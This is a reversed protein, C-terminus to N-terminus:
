WSCKWHNKNQHEMCVHNPMIIFSLNPYTKSDKNMMGNRWMKINCYQLTMFHEIMQCIHGTWWRHSLSATLSLHFNFVLCLEQNDENDFFAHGLNETFFVAVPTCTKFSWYLKIGTSSWIKNKFKPLFIFVVNQFSQLEYLTSSLM